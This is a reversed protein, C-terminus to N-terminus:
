IKEASIIQKAPVSLYRGKILLCAAPNVSRGHARRCLSISANLEGVRSENLLHFLITLFAGLMAEVSYSLIKDL